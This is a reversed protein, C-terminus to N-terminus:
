IKKDNEIGEKNGMDLIIKVIEDKLFPCKKCNNKDDLIHTAMDECNMYGCRGCNYKPLLDTIKGINDIKDSSFAIILSFIFAIGTLIFIAIM